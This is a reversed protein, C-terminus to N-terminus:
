ARPVEVIVASGSPTAEEYRVNGQSLRVIHHVLWLGLGSGHSLPEIDADDTLIRREDTPIGPGDDEIRIAVTEARPEVTLEVRDSDSGTHVISNEILEYLGSQLQDIAEIEVDDPCTVSVTSDPYKHGVDRTVADLLRTLSIRQPHPQDVLLEVIRREKDALDTLGKSTEIIQRATTEDAADPDHLFVEAYGTIVNIKNRLNHRLVRSLTQLHRERDKLETIDTQIAVFEEVNGNEDTLATITQHAFYLTGNRRENIIEREWEGGSLLTEWLNAFYKQSMKGSNLIKPTEGLAERAPYGTIEEFAPNVYQITGDVDTIFVAYGAHEVARKFERLSHERAKRETEYRDLSESLENFSAGIQRWEDSGGVAIQTGYEKEELAKFGTLLHEVQHLNRRYVWWGFGAISFLVVLISGAQLYSVTRATSRLEGRSQRVSVTWGLDGVSVNRVIADREPSPDTSYVVEDSQTYITLEANPKLLSTATGAFASEPLHYAANLTGVIRGEHRIPSSITVIYNGSEAAIPDSIYTEGAVARQFYTRDSFDSGILARREDPPLGAAINLMTGNRHIVSVGSFSTTNVFTALATRQVTRNEAAVFPSNAALEVTQERSSFQASLQSGIHHASHNVEARGQEALTEKYLQFGAFVASSLLIAIFILVVFFARRTNM